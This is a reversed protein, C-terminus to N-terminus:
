WYTWFIKDDWKGDLFIFILIEGGVPYLEQVTQGM